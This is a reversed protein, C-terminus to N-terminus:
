GLILAEAAMKKLYFFTIVSGWLIAKHAVHKLM